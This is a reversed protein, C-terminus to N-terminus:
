VGSPVGARGAAPAVAEAAVGGPVTLGDLQARADDLIVGPDPPIVGEGYAVVPRPIVHLIVLRAAHDRSLAAALQLAYGSRDSFDTPHLITRIPLM